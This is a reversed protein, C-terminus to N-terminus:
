TCACTTLKSRRCQSTARGEPQCLLMLEPVGAQMCMDLAAVYGAPRQCLKRLTHNDVSAAWVSPVQLLLPSAELSFPPPCGDDGDGMGMVTSDVGNGGGSHQPLARNGEEV